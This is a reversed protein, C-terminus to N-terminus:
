SRSSSPSCFVRVAAAYARTSALTSPTSSAKPRSDRDVPAAAARGDRDDLQEAASGSSSSM